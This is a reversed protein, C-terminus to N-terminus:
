QNKEMKDGLKPFNALIDQVASFTDHAASTFFQHTFRAWQQGLNQGKTGNRLHLNNEGAKWIVYEVNKGLLRESCQTPVM